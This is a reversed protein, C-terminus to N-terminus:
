GTLNCTQTVDGYSQKLISAGCRIPMHYLEMILTEGIVGTARAQGKIVPQKLTTRDTIDPILSFDWLPYIEWLNRDMDYWTNNTHTPESSYIFRQDCVTKTMTNRIGTQLLFAPRYFTKFTHCIYKLPMPLMKKRSGKALTIIEVRWFCIALLSRLAICRVYM